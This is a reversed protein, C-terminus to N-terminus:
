MEGCLMSEAHPRGLARPEEALDVIPDVLEERRGLRMEGTLEEALAAGLAVM